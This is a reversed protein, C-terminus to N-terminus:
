TEEKIFEMGPLTPSERWCALASAFNEFVQCLAPEINAEALPGVEWVWEPEKAIVTRHHLPIRGKFAQFVRGWQDHEKSGVSFRVFLGDGRPLFELGLAIGGKIQAM